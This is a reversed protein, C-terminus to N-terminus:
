VEGPMAVGVIGSGNRVTFAMLETTAYEAAFVLDCETERENEDVVIVAGGNRLAAVAAEIEDFQVSM